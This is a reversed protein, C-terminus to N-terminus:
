TRRDIDYPSQPHTEKLIDSIPNKFGFSDSFPNQMEKSSPIWTWLPNNPEKLAGHDSLDQISRKLLSVCFGNESKLIWDQTKKFVRVRFNLAWGVFATKAVTLWINPPVEWSGVVASRATTLDCNLCCHRYSPPAVSCKISSLSFGM